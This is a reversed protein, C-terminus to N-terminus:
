GGPQPNNTSVSIAVCKWVGDIKKFVDLGKGEVEVPGNQFMHAYKTKEVAYALDGSVSVDLVTPESMGSVLEPGKEYFERLSGKGEQQPMGPMHWIADETYFDLLAERDGRVEAEWADIILQAILKKEAEIDVSGM